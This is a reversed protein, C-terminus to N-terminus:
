ANVFTCAGSTVGREEYYMPNYLGLQASTTIKICDVVPATAYVTAANGNTNPPVVNNNTILSICNLGKQLSLTTSVTFDDFGCPDTDTAYINIEGCSFSDLYTGHDAGYYELFFQDWKGWAGNETYPQVDEETVTDVRVQYIDATLTVDTEMESGLRLILTANEVDRDSVIVFNVSIGNICLGAVCYGNSAGVGSVIMDEENRTGSFATGSKNMVNTCEAEFTYKVTKGEEHSVIYESGYVDYSGTGGEGGCAAFALAGTMLTACCLIGAARKLIKKM